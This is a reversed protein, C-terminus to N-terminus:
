FEFRAALQLMRPTYSLDSSQAPLGYGASTIATTYGGYNAHNLLNFVEFQGIIRYREKISITKALRSDLRVIPKGYFSNRDVVLYQPATALVHNLSPDNYVKTTALFTRNTGGSGAPAAIGFPSGGATVVYAAGSGFRFLRIM